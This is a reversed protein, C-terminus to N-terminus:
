RRRLWLNGGSNHRALPLSGYLQDPHFRALYSAFFIIEFSTNFQLFARVVYNENWARGEYVWERPYEFPYFIDHIHIYVGRALRPLIKFLIHNVDSGTKSVHTSDIFLIDGSSLDDFVTLPVRQVPKEILTSRELDGPRLLSHLREPYPEVFTCRISSDFFLDSTDLMVCSSFGSGIEIIQRPRAHRIMSYLVIGDGYSYFDNDFCYRHRDTRTATFPLEPYYAKMQELLALQAEQGLDIGGLTASTSDFIEEERARVEELSPIPSYFHGAPVWTQPDAPQATKSSRFYRRM